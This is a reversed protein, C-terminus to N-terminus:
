ALMGHVDLNKHHNRRNKTFFNTSAEGARQRRRGGREARPAVPM